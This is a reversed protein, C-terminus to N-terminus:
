PEGQHRAAEALNLDATTAGPPSPALPPVILPSASATLAINSQIETLGIAAEIKDAVAAPTIGFHELAEPAHDAVYQTGVALAPPLTPHLFVAHRVQDETAQQIKGLSNRVANALLDAMERNKLKAQIIAVLVIGLVSFFGGVAAVAIGTLDVAM